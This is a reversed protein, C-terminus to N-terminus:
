GYFYMGEKLFCETENIVLQCMKPSPFIALAILMEFAHKRQGLLDMGLFGVTADAEM